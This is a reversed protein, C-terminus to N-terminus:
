DTRATFRIQNKYLPYWKHMKASHLHKSLPLLERVQNQANTGASIEPKKPKPAMWIKRICFTMKLGEGTACQVNKPVEICIYFKAERDGVVKNSFNIKAM